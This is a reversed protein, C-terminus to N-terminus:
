RPVRRGPRHGRPRRERPLGGRLVHAGGAPAPPCGLCLSHTGSLWAAAATCALCAGRRAPASGCRHAGQRACGGCGAPRAGVQVILTAVISKANIFGDIGLYQIGSDKFIEAGAKFWPLHNTQDLLEPVVCGLAGLMAWRAHIVQAVARRHPPCARRTLARAATQVQRAAARPGAGAGGGGVWM